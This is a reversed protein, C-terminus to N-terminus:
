DTKSINKIGSCCSVGGSRHCMGTLEHKGSSAARKKCYNITLAAVAFIVFTVIATSIFTTM